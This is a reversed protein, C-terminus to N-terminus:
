VGVSPDNVGHELNFIGRLEKWTVKQQWPWKRQLVKMRQTMRENIDNLEEPQM